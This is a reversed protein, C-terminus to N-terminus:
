KKVQRLETEIRVVNVDNRLGAHGATGDTIPTAAYYGMSGKEDQAGAANNYIWNASSWVSAPAPAATAPPTAPAAPSPAPNDYDVTWPAVSATKRVAAVLASADADSLGIYLLTRHTVTYSVGNSPEPTTVTKYYCSPQPTASIGFEKPVDAPDFPTVTTASVDALLVKEIMGACSDTAAVKPTQSCGALSLGIVAAVVVSVVAPVRRV